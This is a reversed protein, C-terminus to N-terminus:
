KYAEVNLSMLSGGITGEPRRTTYTLAPLYCQSYDDIYFHETTRWDYEICEKFGVDRLDNQLSSFTFGQYHYDYPHKQAGFMLNQIERVAKPSGLNNVLYHSLEEMDPVSIRLIGNPRLINFWRKLVEHYQHRPCHELMHCTYIADVSNDKFSPLEFCDEVLDPKVEPRIDINVYGYIKKERCGLHLKTETTKVNFATAMASDCIDQNFNIKIKEKNIYNRVGNRERIDDQIM